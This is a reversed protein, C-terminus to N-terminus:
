YNMKQINEVKPQLSPSRATEYFEQIMEVKKIECTKSSIQPTGALPKVQQARSKGVLPFNTRLVSWYRSM